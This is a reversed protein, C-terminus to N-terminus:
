TGLERLGEVSIERYDNIVLDAKSLAERSATKGHLVAVAKMGARHAGEIGKTADEFVVCGSPQVGMREAAELFIRPDPKDEKVETATVVVEFYGALGAKKLMREVSQRSSSSAVAIPVGDGKLRQIFGDVGPIPPVGGKSMELFIEKKKAILRSLEGEGKDPMMEKFIHALRVGARNYIYEDEFECAGDLAVRIAKVHLPMSDVLTGDMDFIVAEM